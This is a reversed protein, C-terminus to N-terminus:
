EKINPQDLYKNKLMQNLEKKQIKIMKKKSKHKQNQNILVKIQNKKLYILLKKPQNQFHHNNLVVKLNIIQFQHNQIYQIKNLIKKLNNLSNLNLVQNQNLIILLTKLYHNLHLIVM